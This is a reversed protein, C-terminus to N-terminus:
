PHHAPTPPCRTSAGCAAVQLEARKRQWLMLFFTGWLVLLAAYFPQLVLYLISSRSRAIYRVSYVIPGLLAM